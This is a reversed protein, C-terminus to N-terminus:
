RRGHSSQASSEGINRCNRDNNSSYTDLLSKLRQEEDISAKCVRVKISSTLGSANFGEEPLTRVPISVANFLHQQSTPIASDEFPASCTTKKNSTDTICMKSYGNKLKGGSQFSSQFDAFVNMGLFISAITLICSM